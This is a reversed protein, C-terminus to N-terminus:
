DDFDPQPPVTLAALLYIGVVVAAGVLLITGTTSKLGHKQKLESAEQGGVFLAPKGAKGAGIELGQARLTEMGGTRSDRSTVATTLQLRATPKSREAAGLPLRVNMGAFASARRELGSTGRFDEAAACPQAILMAAAVGAAAGTGFKM